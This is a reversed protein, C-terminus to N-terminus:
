WIMLFLIAIWPIFLLVGILRVLHFVIIKAQDAGMEEALMAMDAVAAPTCALLATLLDINYKKALFPGLIFNMALFEVLVILFPIVLLHFNQVLDATSASIVLAGAAVRTVLRIEHPLYAKGTYVQFVAVVILAFTLPAAPLGSIYGLAGGLGSVILTPLTNGIFSYTKKGKQEASKGLVQNQAVPQVYGAYNLYLRILSPFVGIGVILRMMQLIAVFMSDADLDTAMLAMDTVGGPACSLLATTPSLPTVVIMVLTAVFTIAFILLIFMTLPRALSKLGFMAEKDVNLGIIGGAVAQVFPRAQIPFYAYPTLISFALIAFMSGSIAPAPLRMKQAILAGAFGVLFTILM